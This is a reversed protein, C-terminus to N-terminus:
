IVLDSLFIHNHRSKGFQASHIPFTGQVKVKYLTFIGRGKKVISNTYLTKTICHILDSKFIQSVKKCSIGNSPELFWALKARQTTFNRSAIRLKEKPVRGKPQDMVSELKVKYNKPSFLFSNLIWTLTAAVSRSQDLKTSTLQQSHDTRWTIEPNQSDIIETVQM